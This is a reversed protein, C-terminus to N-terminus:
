KTLFSSLQDIKTLNSFVTVSITVPQTLIIFLIMNAHLYSFYAKILLVFIPSQRYIDGLESSREIVITEKCIEDTTKTALPM